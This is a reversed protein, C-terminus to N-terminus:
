DLFSSVLRSPQFNPKLKRYSLLHGLDFPRNNAISMRDINCGTGNQNTVEPLPHTTPPTAAYTHWAHQLASLPPNKPHYRIHFVMSKRMEDNTDRPAPPNTVYSIAWTIAETRARIGDKVSVLTYLQNFM